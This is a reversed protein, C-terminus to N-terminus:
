FSRPCIMTKSKKGILKRLKFHVWGQPVNREFFSLSMYFGVVWIAYIIQQILQGYGKLLLSLSFVSFSILFWSTVNIGLYKASQKIYKHYKVRKM